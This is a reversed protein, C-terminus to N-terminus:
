AAETDSHKIVKEVESLVAAAQESIAGALAKVTAATNFDSIHQFDEADFIGEQWQRCRCLLVYALSAAMSQRFWVGTNQADLEELLSDRTAGMINRKHEEWYSDTLQLAIRILQESLSKDRPVSYREALHASVAERYQEGYKWPRVNDPGETDSVDYVTRLGVPKGNQVIFLTIGQAQPKIRHHLGMEWLEKEAIATPVATPPMQAFIMLQDIFPYKHINGIVRLFLCWSDIDKPLYLIVQNAITVYEQLKDAM